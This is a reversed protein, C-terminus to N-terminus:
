ETVHQIKRASEAYLKAFTKIAFLELLALKVYMKANKQKNTVFKTRNANEVFLSAFDRKQIAITETAIVM